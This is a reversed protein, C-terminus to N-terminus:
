SRRHRSCEAQIQPPDQPSISQGGGCCCVQKMHTGSVYSAKRTDTCPRPSLLHKAMGLPLWSQRTHSCPCPHSQPLTEVPPRCSQGGTLSPDLTCAPTKLQGGGQVGAPCPHARCAWAELTGQGAWLREQVCPPPRSSFLQHTPTSERPTGLTELNDM